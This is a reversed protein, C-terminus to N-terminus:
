NSITKSPVHKNICQILNTKFFAWLEDMGCGNNYKAIIENALSKCDERLKTWDAKSFNYIKRSKTKQYHPRITFDTLTIDHDSLGPVVASNQVLTPNTTFTLDLINKERTEQEICQTLGFKNSLDIVQQQVIKDTSNKDISMTTWDIGPCNFDGCLVYQKNSNLNLKELSADLQAIDREKRHPMYFCGVYLEKRGQLHIKAWIIECETVLSPQEVSVLENKVLIFVGGGYSSRDNRFSKYGEPFVESDLIANVEYNAGPKKGELWSETCCVIDPKCYQMLASFESTKGRLSQANINMIRLNQKKALGFPNSNSHRHSSPSKLSSNSCGFSPHHDSNCSGTRATRSKSKNSGVPTSAKLPSFNTSTSSSNNISEDSIPHYYSDQGISYSHFTFSSLNIYDCICCKWQVNSRNLLSFDKTCMGICSKHHWMSCGDCCVGLDSWNVPKDCFACPFHESPKPNTGHGQNLEVYRAISFLLLLTIRDPRTSGSEPAQKFHHLSKYTHTHPKQKLM